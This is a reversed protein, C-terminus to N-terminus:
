CLWRLHGMRIRVKQYGPLDRLDKDQFLNGRLCLLSIKSEELLERPIGALQLSNEEVRLVKLRRCMGLEKPLSPISNSSLNLELVALTEVGDGHLCQLSNHSVNLYDLHPLTYLQPPLSALRNHSIDLTKLSSLSSLSSPSFSHILNFQLHLTELRKLEGLSPPVTGPSPWVM